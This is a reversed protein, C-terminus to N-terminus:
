TRVASVKWIPNYPSFAEIPCHEKSNLKPLTDVLPMYATMGFSHRKWYRLATSLNQQTDVFEKMAFCYHSSTPLATLRHYTPTRIRNLASYM